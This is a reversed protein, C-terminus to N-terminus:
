SAQAGPFKWICLANEGLILKRDQGTYFDLVTDVFDLEKDMALAVPLNSPSVYAIIMGANLLGIVAWRQANAHQAALAISTRTGISKTKM